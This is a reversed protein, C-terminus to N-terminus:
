AIFCMVQYKLFLMKIELPTIAEIVALHQAGIDAFRAWIM